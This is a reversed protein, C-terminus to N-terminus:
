VGWAAPQWQPSVACAGRGLCGSCVSAGLPTRGGGSLLLTVGPPCHSGPPHGGGGGTGHRASVRGGARLQTGRGQGWGAQGVAGVPTVWTGWERAALECGSAQQRGGAEGRQRPREGAGGRAGGLRGVGGWTSRAGPSRRGFSRKDRSALTRAGGGVSLPCFHRESRGVGLLPEWATALQWMGLSPAAGDARCGHPLRPGSCGPSGRPPTRCLRAHVVRKKLRERPREVGATPLPQALWLTPVPPCLQRCGTASAPIAAHRGHRPKAPPPHRCATRPCPASRRPHRLALATGGTGCPAPRLPPRYAPDGPPASGRVGAQTM